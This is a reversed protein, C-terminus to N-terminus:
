LFILPTFCDKQQHIGGALVMRESRTAAPQNIDRGPQGTLTKSFHLFASFRSQHVILRRNEAKIVVGGEKRSPAIL